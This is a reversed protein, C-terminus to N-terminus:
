RLATLLEDTNEPRFKRLIQNKLLQPFKQSHNFLLKLGIPEVNAPMLYLDFLARREPHIDEFKLLMAVVHVTMVPAKARGTGLAQGQQKRRNLQIPIIKQPTKGQRVTRCKILPLSELGIQKPLLQTFAEVPHDPKIGPMVFQHLRNVIGPTPNGEKGPRFGRM